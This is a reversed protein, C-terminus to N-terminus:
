WDITLMAPLHGQQCVAPFASDVCGTGVRASGGGWSGSTGRALKSIANGALSDSSMTMIRYSLFNSLDVTIARLQYLAKQSKGEQWAQISVCVARHAILGPGGM